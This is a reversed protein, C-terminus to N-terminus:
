RIRVVVEDSPDPRHMDLHKRVQSEIRNHETLTSQELLLHRWEVDLHDREQMLGEHVISLQRNHHASLIVALASGVVLVYLLVRWPHQLLELGIVAFLNIRQSSKSM